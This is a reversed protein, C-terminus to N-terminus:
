GQRVAKILAKIAVERMISPDRRALAIFTNLEEESPVPYGQTIAYRVANYIAPLATQISPATALADLPGYSKEGALRALMNILNPLFERGREGNKEEGGPM